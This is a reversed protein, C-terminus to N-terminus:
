NREQNPTKCAAVPSAAQADVRRVSHDSSRSRFKRSMRCCSETSLATSRSCLVRATIWTNHHHQRPPSRARRASNRSAPRVLSQGEEEVNGPWFSGDSDFVRSRIQKTAPDWRIIQMGAMDIRDRIRSQLPGCWSTTTRRGTASRSSRPRTM